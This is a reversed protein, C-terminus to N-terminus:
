PVDTVATTMTTVTIALDSSNPDSLTGYFERSLSFVSKGVRVRVDM